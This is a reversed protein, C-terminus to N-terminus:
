IMSSDRKLLDCLGRASPTYSLIENDIFDHNAQSISSATLRQGLTLLYPSSGATPVVQILYTGSAPLNITENAENSGDTYSYSRSSGDPNYIRLDLDRQVLPGSLSM